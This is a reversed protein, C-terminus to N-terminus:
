WYRVPSFRPVPAPRVVRQRHDVGLGLERALDQAVRDAHLRLPPWRGYPMPAATCAADLEPRRAIEVEPHKRAATSYPSPTARCRTRRRAAATRRCAAAPSRTPARSAARVLVLLAQAARVAAIEGARVAVPRVEAASNRWIVRTSARSRAARRRRGADRRLQGVTEAIAGNARVAAVARRPAAGRGARAFPGPAAPVRAALAPSPLDAAARDEPLRLRPRDEGARRRAAPARRQDRVDAAKEVADACRRVHVARRLM